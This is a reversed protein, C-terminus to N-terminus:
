SPPYFNLFSSFRNITSITVVSKTPNHIKYKLKLISLFSSRILINIIRSPVLTSSISAICSLSSLSSPLYLSKSSFLPNSSNLPYGQSPYSASYSSLFNILFSPLICFAILFYRLFSDSLISLLM